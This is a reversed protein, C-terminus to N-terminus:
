RRHKKHTKHRRRRKGKGRRSKGYTYGGKQKPKFETANPNLGKKSQAIAAAANAAPNGQTSGATDIAGAIKNIDTKLLNLQDELDKTDSMAEISAKLKNITSKQRDDASKILEKVQANAQTGKGKIKAINDELLMVQKNCESILAMLKKKNENLNNSSTQVITALEQLDAMKNLTTQYDSNNTNM